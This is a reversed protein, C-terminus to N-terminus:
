KKYGHYLCQIRFNFKADLWQQGNHTTRAAARLPSSSSSSPPPIIDRVRCGGGGRATQRGVHKQWEAGM